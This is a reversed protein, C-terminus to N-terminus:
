TRKRKKWIIIVAMLIAVFIGVLLFLAEANMFENTSTITDPKEIIAFEEYHAKIEDDGLARNYICVEDIVGNFGNLLNTNGTGIYLPDDNLTAPTNGDGFIWSGPKEVGNVYIKTSLANGFTHVAVVHYWNGAILEANTTSYAKFGLADRILFRIKGDLIRLDYNCRSSDLSGKVIVSRDVTDITDQKLWAEITITTDIDLDPSDAISVYDDVGDFKLAKGSIGDTWTAGYITGHNGNGSSDSVTIGDGEDFHYWAVVESEISAAKSYDMVNPSIMLAGIAFWGVIGVVLIKNRM